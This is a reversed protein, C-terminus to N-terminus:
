ACNESFYIFGAPDLCTTSSCVCIPICQACIRDLLFAGICGHPLFIETAPRRNHCFCRKKHKTKRTHIQYFPEKIQSPWIVHIQMNGGQYQLDVTSLSAFSLSSMKNEKLLSLLVTMYGTSNELDKQARVPILVM